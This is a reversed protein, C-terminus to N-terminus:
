IARSPSTLAMKICEKDMQIEVIGQQTVL